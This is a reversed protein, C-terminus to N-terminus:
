FGSKHVIVKKGDRIYIGNRPKRVRRGTLDYYGSAEGDGIARETPIASLNGGRFDFSVLGDADMTINTLPFNTDALAGTVTETSDTSWPYPSTSLHYNNMMDAPLAYWKSKDGGLAVDWADYDRGDAHLLQYGYRDRNINVKNSSWSGNDYRVQYIVLGKGPTGVDWGRQQRNELLYYEDPRSTDPTIRYANGGESLPKLRNVSAPETLDLPANWGMLMKELPSFNPPCWGHNTLNGGDMLDWEDVVSYGASDSTPYIDPLGLCHSFEHCITGIGCNTRDPWREASVTYQSFRLNSGPVSVASVFIGTNPWVYGWGEKEQVNGSYGAFVFIVQNIFGDHNWDYEGYNLEPHEALLIETAKRCTNSRTDYLGEYPSAHPQAKENVKYPGYVDFQLHMWGESQDRFYQAVGGRGQGQNFGDQNFLQDYYARPDPKDKAFTSDTFEVLVVLQRYTRTADWQTNPKLARTAYGGRNTKLEFGEPLCHGKIVRVESQASAGLSVCAIFVTVLREISGRVKRM